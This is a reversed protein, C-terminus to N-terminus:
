RMSPQPRSFALPLHGWPLLTTLRLLLLTAFPFCPPHTSRPQGHWLWVCSRHWPVGAHLPKRFTPPLFVPRGNHDGRGPPAVRKKAEKLDLERKEKQLQKIHEPHLVGQQGGAGAAAGLLQLAALGAVLGSVM